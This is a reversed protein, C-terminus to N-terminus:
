LPAAPAVPGGIPRSTTQGPAGDSAGPMAGSSAASSGGTADGGIEGEGYPRADQQDLLWRGRPDFLKVPEFQNGGTKGYSRYPDRSGVGYRAFIDGTTYQFFGLLRHDLALGFPPKTNYDIYGFIKKHVPAAHFALLIVSFTVLSTGLGFVLRTIHYVPAPFRVMVPALSETTLRLLFVSVCFILMMSLTDSFSWGIGTSDILNALPEYFNLAILAGFLVNFFMLAAGWAGESTLVYTTFLILAVFITDILAPPVSM